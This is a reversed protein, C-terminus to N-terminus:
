RVAAATREMLVSKYVQLVQRAISDWGLNQATELGARAIRSRLNVDELLRCVKAALESPDAPNDLLVASEGDELHDEAAGAERSVIVPLGSAMAETIVMGFPEYLTPFVFLDAAAYCSAIDERGGAFIIRNGVGLEAALIRFPDPNGRGCVFLKTAALGPMSMCRVVTRLGKRGFENGVFLMLFDEDRIGLREREVMRRNQRLSPNFEDLDVGNPMVEIDAPPVSYYEQLEKKVRSSCALVKRFKRELYIRWEIRLRFRDAIGWNKSDDTPECTYQAL